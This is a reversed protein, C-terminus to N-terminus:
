RLNRAQKKTLTAHNSSRIPTSWGFLIFIINNRTGFLVCAQSVSPCVFCLIFIPPEIQLFLPETNTILAIQIQNHQSLIEFAVLGKQYNVATRLTFSIHYGLYFDLCSFYLYM